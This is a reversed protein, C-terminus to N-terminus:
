YEQYRFEELNWESSCKEGMEILYTTYIGATNKLERCHKTQKTPQKNDCNTVLVHSNKM